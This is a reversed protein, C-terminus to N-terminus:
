HYVEAYAQKLLEIDKHFFYMPSAIVPNLRTLSLVKLCGTAPDPMTNTEMYAESRAFVAPNYTFVAAHQALKIIRGRLANTDEEPLQYHKAFAKTAWKGGILFPMKPNVQDLLELEKVLWQGVCLSLHQDTVPVAGQNKAVPNCKIVNSYYVDLQHDLGLEQVIDRVLQGANRKISQYGKTKRELNAPVFPWGRAEEYPGPYDSFVALKVQDLDDPAASGVAKGRGLSCLQCKRDFPFPSHAPNNYVSAARM